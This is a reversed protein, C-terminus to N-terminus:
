GSWERPLQITAMTSRGFYNSHQWGSPGAHSETLVRPRRGPADVTTWEFVSKDMRPEDM